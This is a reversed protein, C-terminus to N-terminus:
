KFQLSILGWDHDGWYEVVARYHTRIVAGFGNQSDVWSNVEYQKNGLYKTHENFSAGPFEATAPALLEREVFVQAMVFASGKDHAPAPTSTSSTDYCSMDGCTSGVLWVAGIIVAIAFITGTIKNRKNRKNRKAVRADVTAKDMKPM